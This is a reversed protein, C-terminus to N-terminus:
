PNQTRKTLHKADIWQTKVYRVAFQRRGLSFSVPQDMRPQGENPACELVARLRLQGGDQGGRRRPTAIFEYSSLADMPELDLVGDPLWVPESPVFAKRGLYLPWVPNKLAAHVKELIQRPGGLAVLFGADSLYYRTSEVPHPYLGGGAKTVRYRQLGPWSGGGVTQYDRCVVGERDVRVGMELSALETLAADNSRPIGMAACVLGLVGSKTPELETDRQYFRSQGGWSQMPGVLRLLLTSM